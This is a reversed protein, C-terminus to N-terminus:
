TRQLSPYKSTSKLGEWEAEMWGQTRMELLLEFSIQSQHYLMAAANAHCSVQPRDSDEGGTGGGM